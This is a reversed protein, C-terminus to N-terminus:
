IILLNTRSELCQKLLFSRPFDRLRHFTGAMPDKVSIPTNTFYVNKLRLM